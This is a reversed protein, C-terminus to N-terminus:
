FAFVDPSVKFYRALKGIHNRNLSRKGKLVESITSDDTSTDDLFSELLTVTLDLVPSWAVNATCPQWATRELAASAFTM